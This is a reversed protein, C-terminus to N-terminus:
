NGSPFSVTVTTCNPLEADLGTFACGASMVAVLGGHGPAAEIKGVHMLVLGAGHCLLLAKRLSSRM